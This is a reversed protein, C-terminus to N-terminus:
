YSGEESRENPIVFQGVVWGAYCVIEMSNLM